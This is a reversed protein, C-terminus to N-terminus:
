GAVMDASHGIHWCYLGVGFEQYLIIKGGLFILCIFHSEWLDLWDGPSVSAKRWSPLPSFKDGCRLSMNQIYMQRKQRFHKKWGRWTSKCFARNGNTDWECAGDLPFIKLCFFFLLPQTYIYNIPRERWLYSAQYFM